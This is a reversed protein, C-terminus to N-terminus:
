IKKFLKQLFSNKKYIIVSIRSFNFSSVKISIFFPFSFILTNSFPKNSGFNSYLDALTNHGSVLVSRLIDTPLM